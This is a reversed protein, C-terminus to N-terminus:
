KPVAPVLEGSQVLQDLFDAMPLDKSDLVNAISRLHKRRRAILVGMMAVAAVLILSTVAQSANEM